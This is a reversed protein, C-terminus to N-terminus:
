FGCSCQLVGSNARYFTNSVHVTQSSLKSLTLDNRHQYLAAFEIRAKGANIDVSWGRAGFESTKCRLEGQYSWKSTSYTGRFSSVWFWAEM